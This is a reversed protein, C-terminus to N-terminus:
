ISLISGLISYFSSSIIKTELLEQIDPISIWLASLLRTPIDLIFYLSTIQVLFSTYILLNPM